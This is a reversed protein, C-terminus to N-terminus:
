FPLLGRIIIVAFVLVLSLACIRMVRTEGASQQELSAPGAAGNEEAVSFETGM